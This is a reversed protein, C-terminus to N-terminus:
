VYLDLEEIPVIKNKLSEYKDRISEITKSVEFISTKIKEVTEELGDIKEVSDNFVQFRIFMNISVKDFNEKEEPELDGDSFKAYYGSAYDGLKRWDKITEYTSKKYERDFNYLTNNLDKTVQMLSKITERSSTLQENQVIQYTMKTRQIANVPRSMVSKYKLIAYANPLCSVPHTEGDLTKYNETTIRGRKDRRNFSYDRGDYFVVGYVEHTLKNLIGEMFSSSMGLKGDLYNVSIIKTEDFVKIKQDEMHLFVVEGNPDFCIVYDICNDEENLVYKLITYRLGRLSEKLENANNAKKRSGPSLPFNVKFRQPTLPRKTKMSIEEEEKESESEEPSVVEEKESESEEPSVVEEKESESEEPSVVEEKESESEEPSVVEEKESESGDLGLLDEVSIQDKNGPVKIPSVPKLKKVPGMSPALLELSKAFSRKDKM